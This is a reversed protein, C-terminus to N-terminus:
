RPAQERRRLDIEAQEAHEDGQKRDQDAEPDRRVALDELRGADDRHGHLRRHHRDHRGPHHEDDDRAVDVQRDARGDADQGHGVGQQHGVPQRVQADGEVARQHPDEGKGQAESKADPDPGELAEDDGVDAHRREDDGEAPEQRQPTDDPLHRASGRHGAQVVGELEEAAARQSRDATRRGPGQGDDATDGDDRQEEVVAPLTAPEL